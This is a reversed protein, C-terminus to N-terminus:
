LFKDEFAKAESGSPSNALWFFKCYRYTFRCERLFSNTTKAVSFLAIVVVCFCCCFLLLVLLYSKRVEKHRVKGLEIAVRRFAHMYVQM